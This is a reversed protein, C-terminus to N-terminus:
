HPQNIMHNATHAFAELLRQRLPEDAVTDALAQQMCALWQDRESLGIAFPLHRMRLRPHGFEEWYLNPGGLWGSLFKFLKDEANALEAAHLRRIGAAAPWTDMYHYFREVLAKLVVAGGLRDYPTEPNPDTSM